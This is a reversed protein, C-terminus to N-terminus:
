LQWSPWYRRIWDTLVVWPSDFLPLQPPSLTTLDWLGMSKDSNAGTDDSPDPILELPAPLNFPPLCLNLPRWSGTPSDRNVTISSYTTALLYRSGSKYFQSLAQCGSRLPLHVLCDRCFILDQQPLEDQTIDGLQFQLTPNSYRQSNSEVLEPVVDIGLYCIDTLSMRSMWNFDGCPADLMSRIGRDRLLKTLTSRLSETCALESGRGSISEGSEWLNIQNIHRFVRQISSM